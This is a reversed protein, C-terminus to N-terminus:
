QGTRVYLQKPPAANYFDGVYEKLRHLLCRDPFHGPTLVWYKGGDKIVEGTVGVPPIGYSFHVWDFERIEEGNSDKIPM